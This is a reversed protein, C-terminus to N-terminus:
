SLQECGYLHKLQIFTRQIDTNVSAFMKLRPDHFQILNTLWILSLMNILLFPAWNYLYLPRLEFIDDVIEDYLLWERVIEMNTKESIM